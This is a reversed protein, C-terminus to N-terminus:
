FPKSAQGRNESFSAAVASLLRIVAPSVKLHVTDICVAFDQARTEMDISGSVVIDLRQLVSYNVLHRKEQAFYTSVIQL